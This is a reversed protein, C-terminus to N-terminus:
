PFITVALVPRVTAMACAANMLPVFIAAHNVTSATTALVLATLTALVTEVALVATLQLVFKPQAITAPSYRTAFARTATALEMELATTRPLATPLQAAATTPLGGRTVRARAVHVPVTVTAITLAPTLQARALLELGALRAHALEMRLTASDTSV